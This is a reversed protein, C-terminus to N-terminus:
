LIPIIPTEAEDKQGYNYEGSRGVFNDVAFPISRVAIVGQRYTTM